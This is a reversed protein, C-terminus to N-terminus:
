HLVQWQGRRLYHWSLGGLLAWYGLETAWVAVLPGGLRVAGWAALLYAGTAGLEMGLSRDASGVGVVAHSWMTSASFTLLLMALLRLLPMSAAVLAPENNFWGALQGPVALLAL